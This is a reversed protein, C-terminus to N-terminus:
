PCNGWGSLLLTMDAGDTFGDGTCDGSPTGWGSFIVALDLGSRVRDFNLDGPCPALPAVELIAASHYEGAAIEIWDVGLPVISQGFHPSVGTNTTGAGWAAMTENAKIALSHFGGAAIKTGVGLAAPVISQGFKPSPGGSTTGAGWARVTGDPRIALTHYKGAAVSLYRAPPFDLPSQSQGWSFGYYGGNPESVAGAGWATLLGGAQSDFGHLAMSHFAGAAIDHCPGLNEPVASQGTQPYQGAQSSEGAGWARVLGDRRLAVTHFYGAAIRTCAGLDTPVDTQGYDNSGWVIVTADLPDDHARLRIAASHDRGAAIERCTGLTQGQHAPDTLVTPVISQGREVGSTGPGTDTLGAGWARVVGNTQLAVTHWAGTALRTCSLLDDPPTSQGHANNGWCTVPGAAPTPPPLNACRYCRVDDFTERITRANDSWYPLQSQLSGTPVANPDGPPYLVAPNSFRPVGDNPPYCMITGDFPPFSTGDPVVFRYGFSYPFMTCTFGGGVGPEHCCGFNHGMEHIMSGAGLVTVVCFGSAGNCGSNADKLKAIGAPGDPNDVRLMIVFDARFLDRYQEVLGGFRPSTPNSIDDLDGEFSTEQRCWSEPTGAQADELQHCGYAQDPPDPVWGGPESCETIGPINALPQISVLRVHRTRDPTSVLSDDLITNMQDMIGAVEAKLVPLAAEPTMPPTQSQAYQELACLTYVALVDVTESDICVGSAASSVGGEHLLAIEPRVPLAGGCKHSERRATEFRMESGALGRTTWHQSGSWLSGAYAGDIETLVLESHIGRVDKGKAVYTRKGEPTVTVKSTSWTIPFPTPLSLLRDAGQLPQDADAAYIASANAAALITAAALSTFHTMLPTHNMRM